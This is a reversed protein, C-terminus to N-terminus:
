NPKSLALISLIQLIKKFLICIYFHCTNQFTIIQLMKKTKNIKVIITVRHTIKGLKGM